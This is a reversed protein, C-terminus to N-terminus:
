KAGGNRFAFSTNFAHTCEGYIFFLKYHVFHSNSQKIHFVPYIILVWFTCDNNGHNVFLIKPRIDVDFVFSYNQYM